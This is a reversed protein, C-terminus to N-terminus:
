WLNIPSGKELFISIFDKKFNLNQFICALFFLQRLEHPIHLANCYIDVHRRILESMTNKQYFCYDFIEKDIIDDSLVYSFVPYSFRQTRTTKHRKVYVISLFLFYLLDVLPLGEELGYEWDIITFKKDDRYLINNPQFDKHQIVCPVTALERYSLTDEIYRRLRRYEGEDLACQSALVKCNEYIINGFVTKNDTKRSTGCKTHFLILFDRVQSFIGDVKVPSDHYKMLYKILSVGDEVSELMCYENHIYGEYLIKPTVESVQAGLENLRRIIGCANKLNKEAAISDAIKLVHTPYALGGKFYFLVKKRWGKYYFSSGASEQRGSESVSAISKFVDFPMTEKSAVISYDLTFYKLIYKLPTNVIFKLVSLFLKMNGSCQLIKPYFLRHLWFKMTVDIKDLPFIYSFKRYSPLPTYFRMKKFGAKHLLNKYGSYSYLYVAYRKKKVAYHYVGALYRPLLNIFPLGTHPDNVGLFYFFAFRNEIGIYLVGEPKLVRAIEKLVLEQVINPKSDDVLYGVWELVGNLVVCDFSNDPFPLHLANGCVPKINHTREQTVRINVFRIREWVPELLYVTESTRSLSFAVAGLGCGIDLVKSKNHVGTLYKWDARSEDLLVEQLDKNFVQSAAKKWGIEESLTNLYKMKDSTIEGWYKEKKEATM